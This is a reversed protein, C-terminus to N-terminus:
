RLGNIDQNCLRKTVVNLMIKNFEAKDEAKSFLFGMHQGRIVQLASFTDTLDPLYNFNLPIEIEMIMETENDISDQGYVRVLYIPHDPIETYIQRAIKLYGQVETDTWKRQNCSSGSTIFIRTSAFPGAIIDETLEPEEPEEEIM